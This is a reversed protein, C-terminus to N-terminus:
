ENCNKAFTCMWPPFSRIGRLWFIVVLALGDTIKRLGCAGLIRKIGRSHAMGGAVDLTEHNFSVRKATKALLKFFPSLVSISGNARDVVTRLAPTSAAEEAPPAHPFNRALVVESAERM